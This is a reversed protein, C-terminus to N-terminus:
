GRRFLPTSLYRDGTDPLLAVITRGKMEPRRAIEAAAAIAAGSSVGVLLGEYKAFARAGEYADEDTIRVVEDVVSPDYNKPIFNAGIGQIAHPGPKGGSLIPSRDPEVAAVHVDPNRSKLYRGTGSVTGGTGVGAVFVGVAGETDEWIEPGTTEVHALPNAPNDFQGMIIAGPHADRLEEAKRISGKMGEAGPTLVLEAGLAELVMRRELSMTDPMVIITRYGRASAVGAIGVGTNGSTPEIILGGPKLAGSKEAEEIMKLGVRDKVSGLPNFSEIKVLIDTELGLARSLRSARMLPTHGVLETMDAYVPM